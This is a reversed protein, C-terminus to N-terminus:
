CFFDSFIHLFFVVKELNPGHKSEDDPWLIWAVLCTDIGNLVSIPPLLIYSGDVLRIDNLNKLDVILRGFRQISISPVKLVQIQSKLNWTIKRVGNQSMIKVIRVWRSRVIDWMACISYNKTIDSASSQSVDCNTNLKGSSVLDKSLSVYYVPSNEWCIALGYVEFLIPSNLESRNSFHVDFYFEKESEWQNLFSDFGGPFNSANTPGRYNVKNNSYDHDSVRGIDREQSDSLLQEDHKDNGHGVNANAVCIAQSTKQEINHLNKPPCTTATSPQVLARDVSLNYVDQKGVIPSVEDTAKAAMHSTAVLNDRVVLPRDSPLMLRADDGVRVAAQPNKNATSDFGGRPPSGGAIDSVLPRSMKPMDIGLSKFASFAAIRAEEAQDLVIKRAGIKIKKAVGMQVRRMASIELYGYNTDAFLSCIYLCFFVNIRSSVGLYLSPQEVHCSNM